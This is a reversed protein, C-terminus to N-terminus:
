DRRDAGNHTNTASLMIRVDSAAVTSLAEAGIDVCHQADLAEDPGVIGGDAVATADRGCFRAIDVDRANIAIRIATVRRIVV